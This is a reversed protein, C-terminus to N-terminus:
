FLNKSSQKMSKLNLKIFGFSKQKSNLINHNHGSTISDMNKMCSYSVKVANKNFIKHMKNNASFHKVLLHFFSKGINTKVNRSYPPNFWIVKRKKTRQDNGEQFSTDSPM